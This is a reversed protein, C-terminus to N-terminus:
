RSFVLLIHTQYFVFVAAQQTAAREVTFTRDDPGVIAVAECRRGVIGPDAETRRPSKDSFLKVEKSSVRRFRTPM